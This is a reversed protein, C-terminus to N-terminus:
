HPTLLWCYNNPQSEHVHKIFAFLHGNQEGKFIHGLHQQMNEQTKPYPHELLHQYWKSYICSRHKSTHAISDGSLDFM